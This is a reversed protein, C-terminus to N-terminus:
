EEDKKRRFKDKIKSGIDKATEKGEEIASQVHPKVEETTESIQEMSRKAWEESTKAADFLKEETKKEGRQWSDTLKTKMERVRPQVQAKKTAIVNKCDNAGKKLEDWAQKAEPVVM